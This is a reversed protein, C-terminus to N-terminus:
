RGDGRLVAARAGAYRASQPVAMGPSFGWRDDIKRLKSAKIGINPRLKYYVDDTYPVLTNLGDNGGSLEFVVLIRDDRGPEAALAQAAQGFFLPMGAMTATHACVGGLAGKLLRRRALLKNLDSSASM